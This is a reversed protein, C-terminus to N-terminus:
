FYIKATISFSIFHIGFMDTEGLTGTYDMTVKDGETNTAVTPFLEETTDTKIHGWVQEDSSFGLRGGDLDVLM